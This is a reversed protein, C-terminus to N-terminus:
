VNTLTTLTVAATFSPCCCAGARRRYAPGLLRRRYGACDDRVVRFRYNTRRLYADYRPTGELRSFLIWNSRLMKGQEDVEAAFVGVEEGTLPDYKYVTANYNM